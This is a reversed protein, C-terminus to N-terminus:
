LSDLKNALSSLTIPKKMNTVICHKEKLDKIMLEDLDYASILVIKTGNLGKIKCAVENGLMDGLRYDLLLIDIKSGSKQQTIYKEICDTGSCVTIVNFRLQLVRKYINLIDQEDDCIM